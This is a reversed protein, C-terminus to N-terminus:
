VRHVDAKWTKIEKKIEKGTLGQSAARDALAPLEADSAFRLAIIQSL